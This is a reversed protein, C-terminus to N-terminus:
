NKKFLSPFVDFMHAISDCLFQSLFFIQLFIWSSNELLLWLNWCISELLGIFEGLYWFCFLFDPSRVYFQLFGFVFFFGQLSLLHNIELIAVNNNFLSKWCLYYFTSYFPTLNIFNPFSVAVIRPKFTLQFYWEFSPLMFINKMYFCFYNKARFNVGFSVSYPINKRFPSVTSFFTFFLLHSLKM